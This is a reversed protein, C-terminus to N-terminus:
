GLNKSRVKPSVFCMNVAELKILEDLKSKESHFLKIGPGGINSIPRMSDYSGEDEGPLFYFVYDDESVDGWSLLLDLREKLQKITLPKPFKNKSM